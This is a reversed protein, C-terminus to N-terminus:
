ATRLYRLRIVVAATLADCQAVNVRLTGNLPYRGYIGLDVGSPDQAQMLPMFFDDTVSNSVALIQGNAPDEYLLTTDTTAPADAHFDVFVDLLFGRIAASVVTGTASGADGTTNVTLTVTGISGYGDSAIAVPMSQAATAQGLSAPQPVPEGTEPDIVAVGILPRLGSADPEGYYTVRKISM